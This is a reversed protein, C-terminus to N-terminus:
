APGKTPFGLGRGVPRALGGQVGHALGHGLRQSRVADEELDDCGAEDFGVHRYRQQAAWRPIADPGLAGEPADGVWLLDRTRHHEQGRLSRFEHGAGDDVQVPGGVQPRLGVIYLQGQRISM